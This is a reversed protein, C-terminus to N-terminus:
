SPLEGFWCCEHRHQFCSGHLVSCRNLRRIRTGPVQFDLLLGRRRSSYWQNCHSFHVYYHPPQNWIGCDVHRNRGDTILVDIYLMATTRGMMGLVGSQGLIFGFRIFMLISLINLTTPVFVGSFTGLKKTGGSGTRGKSKSRDPKQDAAIRAAAESTPQEEPLRQSFLSGNDGRHPNSLLRFVSQLLENTRARKVPRSAVNLPQYPNDVASPSFQGRRSSDSSLETPALRSDDEPASRTSFAPRKRAESASTPSVPGGATM